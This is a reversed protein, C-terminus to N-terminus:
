WKGLADGLASFLDHMMRPGLEREVVGGSAGPLCLHTHVSNDRPSLQASAQTRAQHVAERRGPSCLVIRACKHTLGAGHWHRGLLHPGAPSPTKLGLPLAGSRGSLPCNTNPSVEWWLGTRGQSPLGRVTPLFQPNMPLGICRDQASATHQGWLVTIRAPLPCRGPLWQGTTGPRRLSSSPATSWPCHPPPQTMHSVSCHRM